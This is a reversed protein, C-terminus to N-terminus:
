EGIKLRYGQGYIAEISCDSSVMFKRRLRSVHSDLTRESIYVGPWVASSLEERTVCLDAKAVFADLIRAEKPSLMEKANGHVSIAGQRRDYNIDGISLQDPLCVSHTSVTVDSREPFRQLLYGDIEQNLLFNQDSKAKLVPTALCAAELWASSASRAIVVTLHKYTSQILNLQALAFLSDTVWQDNVIILHPLKHTDTIALLQVLTPFTAVLRVPYNGTLSDVMSDDPTRGQEVLWLTAM